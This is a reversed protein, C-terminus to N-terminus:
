LVLTCTTYYRGSVIKLLKLHGIGAILVCHNNAHSCRYFSTFVYVCALRLAVNMTGFSSTESYEVLTERASGIDSSVAGGPAGDNCAIAFLVEDSSTFQKEGDDPVECLANPDQPSLLSWSDWLASANGAALGAFGNALYVFGPYPSYMSRSVIFKALNYDVIGYTGSETPLVPMPDTRLKRLINDMNQCIEEPSDAFFACKDAGAAHCSKCFIKVAKDIDQTSNVDAEYYADRDVVGDIVAREIKDPFMTAFTAGLATGYRLFRWILLYGHRLSDYFERSASINYNIEAM